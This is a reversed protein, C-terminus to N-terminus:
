IIRRVGVITRKYSGGLLQSIVVAQSSGTSAHIFQDDGIYIGVHSARTTAGDYIFFVLDGPRIESLEVERGNDLQGSASRNLDYGFHAYVYKTFGSCDFSDPGNAGYVYPVGLFQKAYAVIADTTANGPEGSISIPDSGKEASKAPPDCLEMYDSSVYGTCNDSTIHYWGDKVGTIKVVADKALVGIRDCDTGAGTRVNLSSDVDKVQGYGLEIEKESELDLYEGFMYGVTTKYSVKYWEENVKELIVVHEDQYVTTLTKSDTNAEKRLRLAEVNVTGVGLTAASAGGILVSSLLFFMICIHLFQKRRDM